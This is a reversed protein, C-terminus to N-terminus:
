PLPVPMPIPGAPFGSAGSQNQFALCLRYENGYGKGVDDIQEVFYFRKSGAPVEILDQTVGNWFGRVDTLKPFLIETHFYPAPVGAAKSFPALVRKGMSLSCPSVVDPTGYVGATGNVRYIHATLNFNPPRFGM